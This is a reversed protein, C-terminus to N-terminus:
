TFSLFKLALPNENSKYKERKSIVMAENEPFLLILLKAVSLM